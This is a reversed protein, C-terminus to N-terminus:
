FDTTVVDITRRIRDIKRKKRSIKMTFIRKLLRKKVSKRVPVIIIIMSIKKIDFVIIAHIELELLPNLFPLRNEKISIIGVKINVKRRKMNM